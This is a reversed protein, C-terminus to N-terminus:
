WDEEDDNKAGQREDYINTQLRGFGGIKFEAKGFNESEGKLVGDQVGALGITVSGGERFIGQVDGANRRARERNDERFLVLAVRALPIKLEAYPSKVTMEGDKIALLEGTVKDGNAFQIQDEKAGSNEEEEENGGTSIKGDWPLVQINRIRHQNRNTYFVLGTGADELGVPDAWQRILTGDMLIAVTKGKRDVCVSVRAKRKGALVPAHHGGLGNSSNKSRRNLSVYNGQIGLQYGPGHYTDFKSAFLGMTLYVQGKWALDFEIRARDPLKVDRGLSGNNQKAYLAGKRFEWAEKSNGKTWEELSNPGSYYVSAVPKSPRMSALMQSKLTLRGAYVTDLLMTTADMSVIKGRLTDGNTLGLTVQDAVARLPPATRLDVGMVNKAAFHVSGEVDGHQWVLEEPSLSELTGSLADGNLFELRDPKLEAAKAPDGAKTRDAPEPVAIVKPQDPKGAADGGFIDELNLEALCTHAMSLALATAFFTRM